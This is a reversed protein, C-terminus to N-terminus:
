CRAPLVPVRRPGPAPVDISVGGDTRHVMRGTVRIAWRGDLGAGLGLHLVAAVAERAEPRRLSRQVSWLASIEAPTYPASMPRRVIASPRPEWPALKTVMPGIRRLESRLTQRYRDTTDRLGTEIFEEVVDPTFLIEPELQLHRAQGWVALRFTIRLSREASAMSPPASRRVVATVFTRCTAWEDPFEAPEWIDIRNNVAQDLTVTARAGM